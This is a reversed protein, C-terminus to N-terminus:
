IYQRTRVHTNGATVVLVVFDVLSLGYWRCPSSWTNCCQVAGLIGGKAKLRHARWVAPAPPAAPQPPRELLWPLLPCM